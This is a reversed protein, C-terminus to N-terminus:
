QPPSTSNGSISTYREVHFYKRLKEIVEDTAGRVDELRKNEDRRRFFDRLHLATGSDIGLVEMFVRYNCGEPNIKEIQSEGTALYQLNKLTPVSLNLGTAGSIATLREINNNLGNVATTLKEISEKVKKGHEFIESNIVSTNRYDMLDIHFTDSVRQDVGPHKYSVTIDFESPNPSSEHLAQNIGDYMLRYNRNPPFYRVGRTFLNPGETEIWHQLSPSLEFTVNEAARDGINSVSLYVSFGEDIEVDVNVLPPLIKRRNRVDTIEYDEMAVSQFNFRKYYKKDSSQHPGRFSKPIQVAFVSREVSLQIPSIRVDEIRPSVNSNIVQELWERSYKTHDIGDDIGVPLNNNETIGYILVGGDSNAFASVDKAIESRKSSDIAPSAKYDLHIDEQVQDAILKEVDALSVPLNIM